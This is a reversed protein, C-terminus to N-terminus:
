KFNRVSLWLVESFQLTGILQCHYIITNHICSRVSRKNPAHWQSIENQRKCQAHSM